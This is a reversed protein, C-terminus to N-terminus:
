AHGKTEAIVAALRDLLACPALQDAVAVGQMDIMDHHLSRMTRRLLERCEAIQTRLDPEPEADDVDFRRFDLGRILDGACDFPGFFHDAALPDFVDMRVAPEPHELAVDRISLDTGQDASAFKM